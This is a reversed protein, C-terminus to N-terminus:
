FHSERAVGLKAGLFFMQQARPALKHRIRELCGLSFNIWPFSFGLFLLAIPHARPSFIYRIRDPRGM